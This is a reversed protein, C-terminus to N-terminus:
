LEHRREYFSDWTYYCTGCTDTDAVRMRLVPVKAKSGCRPCRPSLLEGLLMFPLVLITLIWFLLDKM